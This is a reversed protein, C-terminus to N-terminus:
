HSQADPRVKIHRNGRIIVWLKVRDLAQYHTERNWEFARVTIYRNISDMYCRRPGTIGGVCDVIEKGFTRLRCCVNLGQCITKNKIRNKWQDRCMRTVEMDAVEPEHMLDIIIYYVVIYDIILNNSDIWSESVYTITRRLISRHVMLKTEEFM